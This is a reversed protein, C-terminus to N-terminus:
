AIGGYTTKRKWFAYTLPLVSLLLLGVGIYFAPWYYSPACTLFRAACLHLAETLDGAIIILFVGTVALVIPVVLPIIWKLRSGGDSHDIGEKDSNAM